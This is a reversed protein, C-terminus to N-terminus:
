ALKSSWHRRPPLNSMEFSMNPFKEWMAQMPPRDLWEGPKFDVPRIRFGRVGRRAMQRMTKEPQDNEDIVAVGGFVGRHRKMMELMYSNDFGYFSMQILVIRGVGHPRCHSFLQEPTFSPPKMGEVTYGEALPYASTDPTWVHVHADIWNEMPKEWAFGEAESVALGAAVLGGAACDGLFQRRSTNWRDAATTSMQKEPPHKERM